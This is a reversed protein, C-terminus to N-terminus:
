RAKICFSLILIDLYTEIYICSHHVLHIKWLFKVKHQIFHPLYAGILDLLLIGIIIYLSLPLSDYFNLLGFNNKVVLDSVKLLIFALSFNM